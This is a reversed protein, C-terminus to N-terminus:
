QSSMSAPAATPPEVSSSAAPLYPRALLVVAAVLISIVLGKLWRDREAMQTKMDGRLQEQSATLEGRWREQDKRFGELATNMDGRLKEQDKHLGEIATSMDGRLSEIATSMDGRLSEIATRVEGRFGELIANMREQATEYKAEATSMRGDLEAIQRDLKNINPAEGM